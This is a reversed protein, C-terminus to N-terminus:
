NDKNQSVDFRYYQSPEVTYGKRQVLERKITYGGTYCTEADGIAHLIKAKAEEAEKDAKRAIEKCAAYVGALEAISHDVTITKDPTPRYLAELIAITQHHRWDPEPPANEQVRKWMEFCQDHIMGALTENYNVTYILLEEGGVLVVVEARKHGTVDMQHMVQLLYSPPIQDTGPEGWGEEGQRLHRATKIEVIGSGDARFRDVTALKWEHSPHVFTKGNPDLLGNGTDEEYM